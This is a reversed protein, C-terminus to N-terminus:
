KWHTHFFAFASNLAEGKGQKANPYTRTLVHLKTDRITQLIRDTADTSGDNVAIIQANVSLDLARRITTDIVKEENHVPIFIVYGWAKVDTVRLRPDKKS